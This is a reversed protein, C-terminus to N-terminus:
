LSSEDCYPLSYSQGHHNFWYSSGGHSRMEAMRVDRKCWDCYYTTEPPVHILAQWPPSDPEHHTVGRGLLRQEADWASWNDKPDHM